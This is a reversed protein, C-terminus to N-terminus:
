LEWVVGLEELRQRREEDLDGKEFLRRQTNLWWGLKGGDEVHRQPVDCHGEKEKYQVLLALSQEWQEELMNWVVGLDELRQRREEDLDGKKFEARQNSLWKGLNSGDEVHHSPVNCHHEREHYQVLLDFNQEWQEEWMNWVVGLDELRQRREEDLDGKEFLRRQTHLWSGLKSGDEVHHSPVNCHHEREHYQVLLDFNQEWQSSNKRGSRLNKLKANMRELKAEGEPNLKSEKKLKKLRKWEAAAARGGCSAIARHFIVLTVDSLSLGDGDVVVEEKILYREVDPRFKTLALSGFHAPVSPNDLRANDGYLERCIVTELHLLRDKRGTVSVLGSAADNLFQGSDYRCIKGPSGALFAGTLIIEAGGGEKVDGFPIPIAIGNILRRSPFYGSTETYTLAFSHLSKKLGGKLHQQFRGKGVKPNDYIQM